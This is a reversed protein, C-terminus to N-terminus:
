LRMFILSIKNLIPSFSVPKEWKPFNKWLLQCLETNCRVKAFKTIPM